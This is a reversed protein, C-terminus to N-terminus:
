EIIEDPNAEGIINKLREYEEYLYDTDTLNIAELYRWAMIKVSPRYELKLNFSKVRPLGWSWPGHNGFTDLGGVKTIKSLGCFMLSYIVREQTFILRQKEMDQIQSFLHRISAKYYPYM